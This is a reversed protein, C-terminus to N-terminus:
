DYLTLNQANDGLLEFNSWSGKIVNNYNVTVYTNRDSREHEHWLGIVHGMEHLITGVACNSAGGMPQPQTFKPQYGEEAECVGTAAGNLNIEVYTPSQPAEPNWAVWQILGPFDLNFQTIAAGINTQDGSSSNIQYYVTAVGDVKPWLYSAYAVGVSNPIAGADPLPDVQGLIIDGESIARGNEITYNM